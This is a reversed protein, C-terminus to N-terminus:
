LPPPKILELPAEGTAKSEPFQERVAIAAREELTRFVAEDFIELIRTAPVVIAIGMNVRERLPGTQDNTPDDVGLVGGDYHGHVLGMGCVM